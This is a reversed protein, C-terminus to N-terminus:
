KKRGALFNQLSAHKLRTARYQRIETVVLVYWNLPPLPNKDRAVWRLPIKLRTADVEVYAELRQEDPFLKVSLVRM